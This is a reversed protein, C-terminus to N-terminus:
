NKAHNARSFADRYVAQLKESSLPKSRSRYHLFMAAARGLAYTTAFSITGAAAAGVTQGYVPILKAIQRIGFNAGLRAAVGVGMSGLFATSVKRDWSVGYFTGLYYLMAIQVAPVSAIGVLPLADTAGAATAYTLVRTRIQEFAIQEASQSNQRALLLAAAPLMVELHEIVEDIGTNEDPKEPPMAVTVERLPGGTKLRFIEANAAKARSLAEEDTILDAGTHLLLVQKSPDKALVEALAEAVEGQVPDDIRALVLIAQSHGASAALDDTPDYNAEGLGRTDMFRLLPQDAPYDFQRSTRTCPEYGNGVEITSLATLTQILSSKGAGTKGLLWVIPIALEAAAEIKEPTAPVGNKMWGFLFSM